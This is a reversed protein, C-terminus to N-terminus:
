LNRRIMSLVCEVHNTWPFMDVPQMEDVSYGIEKFWKLDRALSEPGCSVYIVKKPKSIGVAKIFEKTSGSRPPDMFVIDLKEGADAMGVMFDGADGTYFRANKIQNGKANGIADKVANKNLEVGYVQKAKKAAILSITGIGSYADVVVEHGKLDAMEMAKSYLVETQVPNIQYFSQPSIRFKLGCLDDTIYGTGYLTIDREGLVMSTDKDNVNLVMTTIEPHEKKMVKIFNNKGPFMHSTAVMVVMIQGSKQGIRVLVHRLFGQGSFEDYSRMKFSKMLSRITEVIADAREDQIICRKIPILDHSYSKYMGAIFEQKKLEGYSAVSKNRYSFPNDMGIVKKVQGFDKLLKGIATQKLKLSDEYTVDLFQCGGCEGFYPCPVKVNPDKSHFIKMPEYGLTAENSVPEQDKRRAKDNYNAKTTGRASPKRGSGGQRNGQRNGPRNGGGSESGTASKSRNYSKGKFKSASNKHNSQQSKGAQSKNRQNAM